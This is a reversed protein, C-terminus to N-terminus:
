TELASLVDIPQNFCFHQRMWLMVHTSSQTFDYDPLDPSPFPHVTNQKFDTWKEEIAAQNVMAQAYVESKEMKEQQWFDVADKIPQYEKHLHQLEVRKDEPIFGYRILNNFNDGYKRTVQDFPLEKLDNSVRTACIPDHYPTWDIHKVAYMLPGFFLYALGKGILATPNVYSTYNKETISCTPFKIYTLAGLVGVIFPSAVIAQSPIPCYSIIYYLATGLAALNLLGIIAVAIKKLVLDTGCTPSHTEWLTNPPPTIISESSTQEISSM